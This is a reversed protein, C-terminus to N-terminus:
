QRELEVRSQLTENSLELRGVQRRSSMLSADATQQTRQEDVREVWEVLGLLGDCTVTNQLQPVASSRCVSM